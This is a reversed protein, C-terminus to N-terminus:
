FFGSRFVKLATESLGCGSTLGDFFDFDFSSVMDLEGGGAEGLRFRFSSCTPDEGLSGSFM